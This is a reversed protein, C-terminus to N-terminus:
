QHPEDPLPRVDGAAAVFRSQLLELVFRKEDAKKPWRVIRGRDDLLHPYRAKERSETTANEHSGDKREEGM